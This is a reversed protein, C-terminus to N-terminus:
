CLDAQSRLARLSFFPDTGPVICTTVFGHMNLGYDRSLDSLEGMAVNCSTGSRASAGMLQSNCLTVYKVAM